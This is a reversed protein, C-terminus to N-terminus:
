SQCFRIYSEWRKMSIGFFIRTVIGSYKRILPGALIPRHPSMAPTRNGRMAVAYVQVRYVLESVGLPAQEICMSM